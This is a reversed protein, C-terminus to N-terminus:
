KKLRPAAARPQVPKEVAPAAVPHSVLMMVVVVLPWIHLLIREASTSLHWDLSTSFGAYFVFYGALQLAVMLAATWFLGDPTRWRVLAFWIAALIVMPVLFSGFDFAAEAMGSLTTWLRGSDLLRAGVTGLAGANVSDNAPAMHYRFHGVVALGAGIGPALWIAERVRRRSAGDWISPLLAAAALVVCFLLGENKTWAALGATLGSLLLLGAASGEARKGLLLFCGSMACLAALPVDAYLSAAIRTMGTAGLIVCGALVGMTAGCLRGATYAGAGAAAALFLMQLVGAVWSLEAGAAHWGLAVAGPVLLPYDPHSWDLRPSFASAFETGRFLFRARLNWISWADWEGHPAMVALMLFAGLSVCATVGLIAWLWGPARERAAEGVEDGVPEARRWAATAAALLVAGGAGFVVGVPLGLVLRCAFYLWSAVGAGVPGAAALRMWDASELRRPGPWLARTVCMGLSLLALFYLIGM